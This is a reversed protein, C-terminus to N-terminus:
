AKKQDGGARQALQVLRHALDAPPAASGASLILRGFLHLIAPDRLMQAFRRRHWGLCAAEAEAIGPLRRLRAAEARTAPAMRLITRDRVQNFNREVWYTLDVAKGQRNPLGRAAKMVFDEASRVAYHNLQVLDTALAEGWLLIREADGAIDPALPRGSGDVWSPRAKPRQRPRHIGPGDFAERRYLTKFFRALPPFAADAPIARDYSPLTSAEPRGVHGAHGFLRWPLVIADAGPVAALLDPLGDLPARLNVFEDGDLVAVWDASVVAPHRAAARLAAWQPRQGEPVRQAVHTLAGGAALLDLLRDSGDECDNSFALITDAGAARHHAVWEVLHPGENRLTTVIAIRPPGTETM